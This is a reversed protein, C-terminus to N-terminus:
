SEKREQSDALGKRARERHEEKVDASPLGDLTHRKSGDQALAERYSVRACHKGLASRLVRQSVGEPRDKLLPRHVHIALPLHERIAAHTHLYDQAIAEPTRTAPLRRSSRPTRLVRPVKLKLIPRTM